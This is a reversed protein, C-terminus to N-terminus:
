DENVAMMKSDRIGQRQNHHDYQDAQYDSSMQSGDSSPLRGQYLMAARYIGTVIDTIDVADLAATIFGEKSRGTSRQPRPWYPWIFLIAFVFAELGTLLPNLGSNLDNYSLYTTPNLANHQSLINLIINQLLQLLVILKFLGLRALITRDASHLAARFRLYFKLLAIICIATCFGQVVSVITHARHYSKTGHCHTAEVIESIIVIIIRTPLIQLVMYYTSQFWRLDQVQTVVGDKPHTAFYELQGRFTSPALYAILLYFVAILAFAEYLQALPALYYAINYHWVGFFSFFAFIAPTWIIRILQKQEGPRTYRLFHAISLLGSILCSCIATGPAIYTMLHHFTLTGIM